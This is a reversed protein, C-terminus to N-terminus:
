LEDHSWSDSDGEVEEGADSPKNLFEDRVPFFFGSEMKFLSTKQPKANTCSTEWQNMIPCQRGCNAQIFRHSKESIIYCGSIVHKLFFVDKGTIEEGVSKTVGYQPEKNCEIEWDDNEDGM